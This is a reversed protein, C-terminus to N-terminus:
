AVYLNCKPDVILKSLLHMCGAAGTQRPCHSLCWWSFESPHSSLRRLSGGACWWLCCGGTM